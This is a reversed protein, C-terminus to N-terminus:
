HCGFLFLSLSHSRHGPLVQCGPTKKKKRKKEGEHYPSLEPEEQSLALM